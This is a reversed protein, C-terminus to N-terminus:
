SRSWRSSPSAAPPRSARPAAAMATAAATAAADEGGGSGLLAMPDVLGSWVAYFGGGGLALGAVLGLVLGKGGRKAPSPTM